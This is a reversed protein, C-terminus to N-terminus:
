VHLHTMDKFLAMRAEIDERGTRQFGELAFAEVGFSAVINGFAMARRISKESTDGQEAIAGMFGGAFSDGAGTPDVVDGLPFAPMLAITERTFLMAGHEGKKIMVYSPGEKLIEHAARILSHEGTLHRAESDNLLLMDVRSIVQKLAEPAINIWLDMTDAAVFKPNRIQDLVKLQLDPTINALFLYPADGYRDPLKPDFHELVNLDTSITSRSNMDEDYIGSWRFTKGPVVELGAQDIGFHNFLSVCDPPFDEGVVGVMGTHTFYSAAACAFSASGGLIDARKTASTEITDLGLSGVIVLEVKQEASM